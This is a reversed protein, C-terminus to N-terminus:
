IEKVDFKIKNDLEIGYLAEKMWTKDLLYTLYTDMENNVNTSIKFTIEWKM